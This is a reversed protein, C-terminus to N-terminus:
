HMLHPAMHLAVKAGAMVVEKAIDALASKGGTKAATMLAQGLSEGKPKLSEPTTSLVALGKSTLGLEYCFARPYDENWGQRPGVGGEKLTVYNERELWQLTKDAFRPSVESGAAAEWLSVRVTDPFAAYADGLAAGVVQNFREINQGPQLDLVPHTTPDIDLAPEAREVPTAALTSPIRFFPDPPASEEGGFGLFDDTSSSSRPVEELASLRMGPTPRPEMALPTSPQQPPPVALSGPQPPSPRPTLGM